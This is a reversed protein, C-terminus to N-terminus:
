KRLLLIPFIRFIDLYDRQMFSAVAWDLICVVWRGSAWENDAKLRGTGGVWSGMLRLFSVASVKTPTTSIERLNAFGKAEKKM